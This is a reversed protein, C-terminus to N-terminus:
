LPLLINLLKIILTIPTIDFIMIIIMIVVYRLDDFQCLTSYKFNNELKSKYSFSVQISCRCLLSNRKKDKIKRFYVMVIIM